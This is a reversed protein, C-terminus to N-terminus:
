REMREQERIRALAAWHFPGTQIWRVGVFGAKRLQTDTDQVLAYDEEDDWSEGLVLRAEDRAPESAFIIDLVLLRGRPRLIRVIEHLSEQRRYLPVEHWSFSSVVADFKCRSFPIDEFSGLAVEFEPHASRCRALMAESPDVGYIIAGRGALIASLNGTGIGVDLVLEKDSVPLMQAACALSNDYGFLPGSADRVGTDYSQAWRDFLLRAEEKSRPM